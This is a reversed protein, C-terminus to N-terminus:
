NGATIGLAIVLGLIAAIVVLSGWMVIKDYSKARSAQLEQADRGVNAAYSYRGDVGIWGRVGEFRIQIGREADIHVERGQNMAMRPHLPVAIKAKDDRYWGDLALRKRVRLRTNHSPFWLHIDVVRGARPSKLDYAEPSPKFGNAHGNGNAPAGELIVAPSGQTLASKSDLPSHTDGPSEINSHNNM